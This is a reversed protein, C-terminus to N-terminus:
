STADTVHSQEMRVRVWLKMGWWFRSTQNQQGTCIYNIQDNSKQAEVMHLCAIYYFTTKKRKRKSLCDPTQVPQKLKSLDLRGPKIQEAFNSVTETFFLSPHYKLHLLASLWKQSAESVCQYLGLCQRSHSHDARTAADSCAICCSQLTAPHLDKCGPKLIQHVAQFRFLLPMVSCCM